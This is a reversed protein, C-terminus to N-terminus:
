YYCDPNYTFWRVVYREILSIILQQIHQSQVPLAAALQPYVLELFGLMKQVRVLTDLKIASLGFSAQQLLLQFDGVAVDFLSVRAQWRVTKGEVQGPSGRPILVDKLGAARYPYHTQLLVAADGSTWKIISEPIADLQEVYFPLRQLEEVIQLLFM